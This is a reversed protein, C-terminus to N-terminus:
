VMNELSKSCLLPLLIIFFPLVVLPSLSHSLSLHIINDHFDINRHHYKATEAKMCYLCYFHIFLPNTQQEIYIAIEKM